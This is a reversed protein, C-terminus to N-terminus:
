WSGQRAPVLAPAVVTMVTPARAGRRDISDPMMSAPTRATSTAPHPDPAPWLIAAPTDLLTACSFLWVVFGAGVALPVAVDEVPCPALGDVVVFARVAVAAAVALVVAVELVLAAVELVFVAVEFVLVTVSVSDAVVGGLVVAVVFVTVPAVDVVVTVSACVVVGVAVVAVTM